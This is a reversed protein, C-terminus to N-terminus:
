QFRVPEAARYRAQTARELCAAELRGLGLAGRMQSLVRTEQWNADGDIAAMECALLYATEGTAGRLSQGIRALAKELGKEVQLMVACERAVDPLTDIDFGRFIPWTRCVNGMHKLESDPMDGDAAAVIVMTHILATQLALM